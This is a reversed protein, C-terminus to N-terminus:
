SLKLKAICYNRLLDILMGCGYIKMLLILVIKTRKFYKSIVYRTLSVAVANDYKIVIGIWHLHGLLINYKYDTITKVMGDAGIDEYYHLCRALQAYYAQDDLKLFTISNIDVDYDYLIDPLNATAYKKTFRICLEYDQSCRYEERYEGIDFYAKKEFFMTGHQFCNYRRISSLIEANDTPYHNTDIIKGNAVINFRTGVMKIEPNFKLFESQKELRLPHSIDGSDQRAIYKGNAHRIGVILSKTLGLNEHSIVIIRSDKASYMELIERSSDTSGDNIVICEFDRYTQNVLSDLTAKLKDGGNYVSMVISVLPSSM